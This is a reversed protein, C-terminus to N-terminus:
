RREVLLSAFHQTWHTENRNESIYYEYIYIVKIPARAERQFGAM